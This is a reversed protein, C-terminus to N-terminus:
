WRPFWFKVDKQLSRQSFPILQQAHCILRRVTCVTEKENLQKGFNERESSRQKPFLIKKFTKPPQLELNFIEFIRFNEAASFLKCNRHCLAVLGPRHQSQFLSAFSLLWTCKSFICKPYICKGTKGNIAWQCRSWNCFIDYLYIFLCLKVSILHM